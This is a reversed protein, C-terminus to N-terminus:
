KAIPYDTRHIDKWLDTNKHHKDQLTPHTPHARGGCIQQFFLQRDSAHANHIKGNITELWRIDLQKGPNTTGCVCVTRCTM